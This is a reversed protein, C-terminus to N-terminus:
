RITGRAGQLALISRHFIFLGATSLPLLKRSAVWRVPRRSTTAHTLDAVTREYIFLHGGVKSTIHVLGRGLLALRVVCVM